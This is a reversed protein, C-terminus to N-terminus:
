NHQELHILGNVKISGSYMDQKEATFTNEAPYLNVVSFADITNHYGNLNLNLTGWKFNGALIIEMGTSYSDGANQFINYVLTSEPQTSGIRTITAEMRKHYLAGYFYGTESNAKYGLEVSNTFQPRLAPNGVKIFKQM